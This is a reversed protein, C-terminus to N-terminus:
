IPVCTYHYVSVHIRMYHHQFIDYQNLTVSTFEQSLYQIRIDASPNTGRNKGRKLGRISQQAQGCGHSRRCHPLSYLHLAAGPKRVCRTRNSIIPSGRCPSAIPRTRAAGEAPRPEHGHVHSKTRKSGWCYLGFPHESGGRRM